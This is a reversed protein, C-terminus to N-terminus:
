RTDRKSEDSAAVSKIGVCTRRGFCGSKGKQRRTSGRFKVLATCTQEVDLFIICLSFFFFSLVFLSPSLSRPCFSFSASHIGQTACVGSEDPKREERTVFRVVTLSCARFPTATPCNPPHEPRSVAATRISSYGCM